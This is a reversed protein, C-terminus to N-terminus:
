PTKPTFIKIHLAAMYELDSVVQVHFILVLGPGVAVALSDM